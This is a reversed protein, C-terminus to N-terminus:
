TFEVDITRTSANMAAKYIKRVTEAAWHCDHKTKVKMENLTYVIQRYSLGQERLMVILLIVSQEQPEEVLWSDELVWGFPAKGRHHPKSRLSNVPM